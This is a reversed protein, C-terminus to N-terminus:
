RHQRRLDATANTLMYGILFMFCRKSDRFFKKLSHAYKYEDELDTQKKYLISLAKITKRRLSAKFFKGRELSNLLYKCAMRPRKREIFILGQYFDIKQHLHSILKAESESYPNDEV